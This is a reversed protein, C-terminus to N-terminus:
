RALGNIYREVWTYGDGSNRAGDSPSKPDLGHAKEWEDPIGDGDSDVPAAGGRYEPWGGVERTHDIIRGGRGRVEQVIRADVADRKPSSAGARELVAELAQQATMRTVRPAAFPQAVTQVQGNARDFFDSNDATQQPHGDWYNDRIYIRITSPAGISIPRNARSSPGPRIYNAVYNIELNGQTLGSATGGYDYIVNNIFDFTPFPPKGYNDGMRPNRASHHAWLNHHFSVPGNARALSGYGHAGKKHVSKNLGEAIMCWQITANQVDGSLSFCEDVSWSASCHDFIVNRSGHSIDIADVEKGAGEGARSRLYRVIVDHTAVSFERGRLCIGEGPATQGAITVYPNHVEIAKKLDVLGGVRFVVIRPGEAECAARLSGPGSDNLNTVAIVRGGRGGRTAAGFGEAGPFAPVDAAMLPLALLLPLLIRM